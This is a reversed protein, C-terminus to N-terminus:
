FWRMGQTLNREMNIDDGHCASFITSPARPFALLTTRNALVYSDKMWCLSLSMPLM